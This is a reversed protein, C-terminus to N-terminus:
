ARIRIVRVEDEIQKLLGLVRASCEQNQLLFCIGLYLYSRVQQELEKVRVRMTEIKAMLQAHNEQMCKRGREAEAAIRERFHIPPTFCKNNLQYFDLIADVFPFIMSSVSSLYLNRSSLVWPSCNAIQTIAKSCVLRHAKSSKNNKARKEQYEQLSEPDSPPNAVGKPM